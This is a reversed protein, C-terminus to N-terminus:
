MRRKGDQSRSRIKRQVGNDQRISKGLVMKSIDSFPTGTSTKQLVDMASVGLRNNESLLQPDNKILVEALGKTVMHRSLAIYHGISNNHADRWVVWQPLAKLMNHLTHITCSQVFGMLVSPDQLCADLQAVGEESQLMVEVIEGNEAVGQHFWSLPKLTPLDWSGHRTRRGASNLHSIRNTLYIEKATMGLLTHDPRKLFLIEDFFEQEQTEKSCGKIWKVMSFATYSSAVGDKGEFCKSLKRSNVGLTHQATEAQIYHDQIIRSRQCLGFFAEIENLNSHQPLHGSWDIFDVREELFRINEDVAWMLPPCLRACYSLYPENKLQPFIQELQARYLVANTRDRQTCEPAFARRVAQIYLGSMGEWMTKHLQSDSDSFVCNSTETALRAVFELSSHGLLYPYHNWNLSLSLGNSQLLNCIDLSYHKVLSAFVDLDSEKLRQKGSLLVTLAETDGNAVAGKVCSIWQKRKQAPTLIHGEPIKNRMHTAVSGRVDWSSSLLSTM